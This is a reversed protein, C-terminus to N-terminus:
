PERRPQPRGDVWHLGCEKHGSADEEWWWRGARPHEGGHVARTCCACGISIFGQDHLPNYPVDHRHLYDRVDSHSWAILPNIKAMAHAEDWEIVGLGARSDAQERRLGCIWGGRGDLARRLPELKRIRCCRKRDEVSDYFLNVGKEAVMGEVAADEPFYVRIRLAYKAETRAILDYTEKFLRGTDLTVIPIPLGLGAIMDTLVQDEEGLSSAFVVGPVSEAAWELIGEPPLAGLLTQLEAIDQRDPKM